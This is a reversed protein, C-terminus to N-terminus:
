SKAARRVLSKLAQYIVLRTTSVLGIFCPSVPVGPASLKKPAALPRSAAHKLERKNKQNTGSVLFITIRNFDIKIKTKDDTQKNEQEPM